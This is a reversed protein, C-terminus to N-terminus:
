REDFRWIPKADRTLPVGTMEARVLEPPISGHLLLDDNFQKRTMKGSDVLERALSRVQLGGIMYGVQYLPSYDGGIYRRVESTANAKEHGVRDVLFDIMEQPAMQGLEYKLSVIIRACRHARWFLMGVRDEANRQWNLDWLLMEWYLAWGEVFFPTSFLRRHPRVREAMFGQLHHGPILEHPAVIRTFHENNGRMAMLKDDHKMADTAYATLIVQGGYAAFPWIRQEDPSLMKIRWLEECLPPFTILDNQKLFKVADSALRSMLDDQTGPAAHKTKVHALAAKWDSGKGLEGAAKKMEAECWAFEREAIKVLEDPTYAIFENAMDASLAEAGIPDGVLPDDPEGKLGAIEKRLFDEYEDLSRKADEFPKKLWWTFEPEFGARYRYWQDLARGLSATADAARKAASPTLSITDQAAPKSEASDGPKTEPKAPSEGDPKSDPQAANEAPKADKKDKPAAKVLKRVEKIREPLQSVREAAEEPSVPEMKWRSEELATITARFPLAADMEKLRRKALAIRSQEHTIHNRLLIYDVKGDQTLADFNVAALTGAENEFFKVWRELRQDSWPIYYFRELSTADEDYQTIRDVMPSVPVPPTQAIAVPILTLGALAVLSLPHLARHRLLQLM